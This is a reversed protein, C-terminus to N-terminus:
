NLLQEDRTLAPQNGNTAPVAKKQAAASGFLAILPV